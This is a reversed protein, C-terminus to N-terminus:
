IEHDASSPLYVYFLPRGAIRPPEEIAKHERLKSLNWVLQEDKM